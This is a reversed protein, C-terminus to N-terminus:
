SRAVLTRRAGGGGSGEGLMYVKFTSKIRTNTERVAVKAEALEDVAESVNDKSAVDAEAVDVEGTLEWRYRAVDVDTLEARKELLMRLRMENVARRRKEVRERQRTEYEDYPFAARSPVVKRPILTNPDIGTLLCMVVSRPSNIQVKFAASKGSEDSVIRKVDDLSCPAEARDAKLENSRSAAADPGDEVPAAAPNTKLALKLKRVWTDDRLGPVRRLRPQPSLPSVLAGQAASAAADSADPHHHQHHHPSPAAPYLGLRSVAASSSSFPRVTVTGKAGGGESKGSFSSANKLVIDKRELDQVAMMHQTWNYNVEAAGVKAAKPADRRSADPAQARRRPMRPSFFHFSYNKYQRRSSAFLLIGRGASITLPSLLHVRVFIGRCVNRLECADKLHDLCLSLAREGSVHCTVRRVHAVFRADLIIRM